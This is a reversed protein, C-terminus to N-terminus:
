KCGTYIFEGDDNQLYIHCPAYSFNNKGCFLCFDYRGDNNLDCVIPQMFPLPPRLYYSPYGFSRIHKQRDYLYFYEVSEYSSEPNPVFSDADRFRWDEAWFDIPLFTESYFLAYMYDGMLGSQLMEEPPVTEPNDRLDRNCAFIFAEEKGDDDFDYEWVDQIIVPSDLQGAIRLKQRIYKQYAAPVNEQEEITYHTYQVDALFDPSSDTTAIGSLTSIPLLALPSQQLDEKTPMKALHSQIDAFSVKQQQSTEALPHCYFIQDQLYHQLHDFQKTIKKYFAWTTTNYSWVDDYYNNLNKGDQFIALPIYMSDYLLYTAQLPHNATIQPALREIYSPQYFAFPNILTLLLLLKLPLQM